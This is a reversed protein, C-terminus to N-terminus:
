QHLKFQVKKVFVSLDENEYPRLYVKWGHTHGDDERPKPFATSTNGFVIKKSVVLKPTSMSM